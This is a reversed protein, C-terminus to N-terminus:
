DLMVKESFSFKDRSGKSITEAELAARGGLFTHIVLVGIQRLFDRKRQNERRRKCRSEVM